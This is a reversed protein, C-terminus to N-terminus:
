GDIEGSELMSIKYYGEESDKSIEDLMLVKTYERGNSFKFYVNFYPKVGTDAMLNDQFMEVVSNGDDYLNFSYANTTTLYIHKIFNTDEIDHPISSTKAAIGFNLINVEENGITITDTNKRVKFYLFISLSPTGVNGNFTFGQYEYDKDIITNLGVNLKLRKIDNLTNSNTFDNLVSNHPSLPSEIVITDVNVNNSNNSIVIEDKNRIGVIGHEVKFSIIPLEKDDIIFRTDKLVNYNSTANGRFNFLTEFRYIGFGSGESFNAGYQTNLPITAVNWGNITTPTNLAQELIKIVEEIKERDKDFGMIYISYRFDIITGAQLSEYLSTTLVFPTIELGHVKRRWETDNVDLEGKFVINFDNVISIENLLSEIYNLMDKSTM